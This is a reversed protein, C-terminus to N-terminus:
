SQDNGTSTIIIKTLLFTHREQIVHVNEHEILLGPDLYLIQRLGHVKAADTLVTHTCQRRASILAILFEQDESPNTIKTVFFLPVQRILDENHFDHIDNSPFVILLSEICVFQSNM